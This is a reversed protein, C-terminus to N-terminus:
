PSSANWAQVTAMVTAYTGASWINTSPDLTTTILCVRRQAWAEWGGLTWGAPCADGYAVVGYTESSVPVSAAPTSRPIVTVNFYTETASTGGMAMMLQVTGPSLATTTFTWGPAIGIAGTLTYHTPPGPDTVDTTVQTPNAGSAYELYDCIGAGTTDVTLTEGVELTISYTQGGCDVNTLTVNSAAAPSAGLGTAVAGVLASAVLLRWLRSPSLPTRVAGLIDRNAM